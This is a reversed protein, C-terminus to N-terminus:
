AKRITLDWAMRLPLQRRSGRTIPSIPVYTPNLVDWLPGKYYLFEVVVFYPLSPLQENSKYVIDIFKGLSNNVLGAQVWLNTTLMVQQGIALLFKLPFQEEDISQHAHKNRQEAFCHAIPMNLQKLM